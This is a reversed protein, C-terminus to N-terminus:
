NRRKTINLASMGLYYIHTVSEVDNVKSKLIDALTTGDGQRLDIGSVHQLDPRESGLDPWYTESPNLPRNTIATVKSFTAADPYSGLLQNVLSWGIVGSAGFVIAHNPPM